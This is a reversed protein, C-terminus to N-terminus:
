NQPHPNIVTHWFSSSFIRFNVKKLADTLIRNTQVLTTKSPLHVTLWLLKYCTIRFQGCRRLENDGCMFPASFALFLRGSFNFLFLNRFTQFTNMFVAVTIDQKLLIALHLGAFNSFYYETVATKKPIMWLTRWELPSPPTWPLSYM